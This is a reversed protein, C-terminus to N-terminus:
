FTRGLYFYVASMGQDAQGYALYLPGLVSDFGVFVSGAFRLDDVVMAEDKKWANGSEISWGLYLDGIISTDAQWYAVLKGLAARQGRLQDTATGSLSLFGGLTAEDYVPLPQDIYSEFRGGATITYKGYTFVKTLKVELKNYESDDGLEPRAAYLEIRALGGKRPFNVNDLQDAILKLRVGGRHIQDSPLEVVGKQVDPYLVGGSYGLRIQGYSWPSAGVDLGWDLERARFEAVIDKGEYFDVFRQDAKGYPSVFWRGNQTVPQYFESYLGTHDGIQL